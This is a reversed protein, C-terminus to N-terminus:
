NERTPGVGYRGESAGLIESGPSRWSETAYVPGNHKANRRHASLYVKEARSDLTYRTSMYQTKLFSQFYAWLSFSNGSSALGVKREKEVGGHVKTKVDM